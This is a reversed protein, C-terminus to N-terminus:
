PNTPHDTLQNKSVEPDVRFRLVLEKAEADYAMGHVSLSYGDTCRLEVEPMAGNEHRVKKVWRNM